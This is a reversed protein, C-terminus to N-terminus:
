ESAGGRPYLFRLFYDMTSNLKNLNVAKAPDVEKPCVESCYGVLTCGWVGEEANVIQMRESKAGDRSDANYRHLLALIGPGTFSSNLGYQPCAAYCLMCNICSSFQAYEELQRPTQLFEGQEPSRAEAPIIYPKISELKSIFDGADVVLDREIPFHKLAEIRVKGPFYERLFTKCSLKPVNNIMMGCSGCIAMRCSWRFSLTGDLYDKIYQLGQLVSMDESFPVEYRQWVPEQEQEPRYRMVEIEIKRDQDPM